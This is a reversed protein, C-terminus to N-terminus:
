GFVQMSVEGFRAAIANMIRLTRKPARRPTSPRLMAVVSLTSSDRRLDPFYVDHDISPKVKMVQVGHNAYVIDCLWQTKAFLMADALLTYSKYAKAWRESDPAYFLPEYDQIYYACKIALDRHQKLVRSRAEFVDYVSANTTAVVLNCSAMHQALEDAD